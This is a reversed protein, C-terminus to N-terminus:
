PSAARRPKRVGIANAGLLAKLPELKLDFGVRHIQEYLNLPSYSTYVMGHVSERDHGLYRHRYEQGVSKRQMAHNITKRFSHFGLKRPSAVDPVVKCRTRYNTFQKSLWNGAGNVNDLKVAPFLRTEGRARLAAVRELLGLEILDPHIFIDRRSDPGPHDDAIRLAYVWDDGYAGAPVPAFPLLADEELGGRRYIGFDALALQGIESVRAGTYLGLLVGWRADAGLDAFHSADFLTRLEDPTFARYGQKLREQQQKKSFSTHGQAINEGKPYYGASMAWRFFGQLYVAKNHLTNPALGTNSLMQV